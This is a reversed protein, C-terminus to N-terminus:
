IIYSKIYTSFIPYYIFIMTIATQFNPVVIIFTNMQEWNVTCSIVFVVINNVCLNITYKM